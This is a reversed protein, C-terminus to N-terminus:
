RLEARLQELIAQADAMLRRYQGAVEGEGGQRLVLHDQFRPDGLLPAFAQTTPNGVALDALRLQGAFERIFSLYLEDSFREAYRDELRADFAVLSARLTARRILTLGASNLLADYAGTVPEFRNSSFVRGLLPQIRDASAGPEARAVELLERAAESVREQRELSAGLAGHNWEFDSILARLHTQEQNREGRETWWANLAFAILVGITVVVIEGAARWLRRPHLVRAFRSPSEPVPEALAADATAHTVDQNDVDTAGVDPVPQRAPDDSGARSTTM